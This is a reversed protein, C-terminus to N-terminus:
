PKIRRSQSDMGSDVLIHTIPQAVGPNRVVGDKQFSVVVWDAATVAEVDNWFAEYGAQLSGAVGANLANGTVRNETIGIHYLRGRGSKGRNDTRLSIAVTSNGPLVPSTSGGANPGGLASSVMFGASDTMDYGVVNLLDVEDSQLPLVSAAWEARVVDVMAQASTPTWGGSVVWWLSNTYIRGDMAYRIVTKLCNPVPIFAM